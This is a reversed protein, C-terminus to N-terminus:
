NCSEATDEREIAPIEDMGDSRAWARCCCIDGGTGQPGILWLLGTFLGMAFLFSYMITVCILTAMKHFFTFYCFFMVFGSGVTTVAGVFITSGMNRVAFTARADRTQHGQKSAECYIHALHVVYDVSLGIVIVGALAEGVGLDWGMASKCFGLVCAVIGAVCFIAYFSVIINHTSILLVVFSLPFAISIGTFLGMVLEASLDLRAFKGDANFKMSKLGDPAGGQRGQVFEQVMDRVEIGSAYPAREALRSRLKVSVYKLQGDIYGVDYAYEAQCVQTSYQGSPDAQVFQQLEALFAAGTPLPESPPRGLEDVRYHQMDELFCSYAKTSSSIMLTDGYGTCGELECPLTQMKSCVDLIEAQAEATSIDFAPDFKARPPNKSPRYPDFDSTDAGEIGWTFTIISYKEFDAEYFTNSWFESIGLHMHNHPVWVEPETPPTLQLSFVVGQITVAIMIAVIGLAYARVGCVQKRMMPVYLRELLGEICGSLGGKVSRQHPSPSPPSPLPHEGEEGRPPAERRLAPRPCCCRKGEFRKHYILLASPTFLMTFAFNMVICIAAYYGCTRMPMIGSVSQSLFAVTTTFSTSFIAQGSRVLTSRLLTALERESYLGGGKAPVERSLHRFSDVLVFVDDAGIGLVLYIVLVHLYDFFDIMFVRRYFLSGVPLSLVIQYMTVCALFSSNLHLYILWFVIVMAGFALAFDGSIMNSFEDSEYALRIRLPGSPQFRDEEVQLASRLFGYSLRLDKLIIDETIKKRHDEVDRDKGGPGTIEMITRSYASAGTSAFSPHVFRAFQSITGHAAVDLLMAELRTSVVGQDLKSCNAYEPQGQYFLRAASDSVAWTSPESFVLAELRCMEQLRDPTFVNESGGEDSKYLFTLTWWEGEWKYQVLGGDPKDVPPGDDNGDELRSYNDLEGLAQSKASAWAKYTQTSEASIVMWAEEEETIAM